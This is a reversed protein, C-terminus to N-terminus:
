YVEQESGGGASLSFDGPRRGWAVLVVCDFLGFTQAFFGHYHGRNKPCELLLWDPRGTREIDYSRVHAEANRAGQKASNQPNPCQGVVCFYLCGSFLNGIDFFRKALTAHNQDYLIVVKEQSRVALNVSYVLFIARDLKSSLNEMEISGTNEEKKTSAM